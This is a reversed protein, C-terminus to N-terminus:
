RSQGETRSSAMGGCLFEASCRLTTLLQLCFQCNCPRSTCPAPRRFSRGKGGHLPSKVIHRPVHDTCPRDPHLCSGVQPNMCWRRDYNPEMKWTPPVLPWIAHQVALCVFGGRREPRHEYACTTLGVTPLLPCTAAFPSMYQNTFSARARCPTPGLQLLPRLALLGTPAEITVSLPLALAPAAFSAPRSVAVSSGLRQVIIMVTGYLFFIYQVLATTDMCLLQVQRGPAEQVDRHGFVYRQYM